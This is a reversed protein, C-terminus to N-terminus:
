KTSAIMMGKLNNCKTGYGGLNSLTAHAQFAMSAGFTTNVIDKLSVFYARGAVSMAALSEEEYHDGKAELELQYAYLIALHRGMDILKPWSEFFMQLKAKVGRKPIFYEEFNARTMRLRFFVMSADNTATFLVHFMGSILATVNWISPFFIACSITYCLRTLILWWFDASAVRLEAVMASVHMYSLAYSIKWAADLLFWFSWIILLALEAEPGPDYFGSLVFVGVPLVGLIIINGCFTQYIYMFLNFANTYRMIGAREALSFEDHFVMDEATSYFTVEHTSPEVLLGFLMRTGEDDHTRLGRADSTHKPIDSEASASEQELRKPPESPVVGIIIEQAVM